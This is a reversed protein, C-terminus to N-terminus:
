KERRRCEPGAGVNLERRLAEDRGWGRGFTQATGSVERVQPSKEAEQTPHTKNQPQANEDGPQSRYIRRNGRVIYGSGIGRTDAAKESVQTGVSACFQPSGDAFKRQPEEFKLPVARPEAPTPFKNRVAPPNPAPTEAQRNGARAAADELPLQSSTEIRDAFPMAIQETPQAAWKKAKTIRVIVGTTASQTVIYGERRLVSMWRELTKRAFGTEEEIERYSVPHGGLVLGMTGEQRTQRLVLWGYLWVAQGMQQHHKADFLVGRLGTNFNKARM